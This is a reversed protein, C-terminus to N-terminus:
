QGNESFAADIAKEIHGSLVKEVEAITKSSVKAGAAQKHGGGGMLGALASVDIKGRSRMSIKVAHTDPASLLVAVETGKVTLLDEVIGEFDELKGSIAVYDKTPISSTIVKGGCTLSARELTFAKLQIHSFLRNKYVEDVIRYAPIGIGHLRAAAELARKDTNSHRFCGTDTILTTYIAGAAEMDLDVGLADAIDMVLLGTSARTIDVFNVNGFRNNSAHHDVNVVTVGDQFIRFGEFLRARDGCDFTFAAAGPEPTYNEAVEIYGPAPGNMFEYYSPLPDNIYATVKKGMSELVRRMAVISGLGDGDPNVHTGLFFIDHDHIVKLVEEIGHDIGNGTAM